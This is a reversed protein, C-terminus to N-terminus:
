AKLKAELEANSPESLRSGDPFIITPVIRKGNNLRMVLEAKDPEEDINTWQYEVGRAAFIRKARACDPCWTTGYMVIGKNEM